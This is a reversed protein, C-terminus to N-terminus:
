ESESENVADHIRRVLEGAQSGRGSQWCYTDCGLQGALWYLFSLNYVGVLKPIVNGDNDYISGKHTGDSKHTSILRAKRLQAETFHPAYFEPSYLTHGDAIVVGGKIAERVQEKTVQTSMTNGKGKHQYEM